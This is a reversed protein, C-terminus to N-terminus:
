LSCRSSVASKSYDILSVLWISDHVEKIGLVQGAFVTGINIKKKGLCIRSCRTVVITKDNGSDSRSL